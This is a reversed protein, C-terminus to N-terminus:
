VEPIGAIDSDSTTHPIVAQSVVRIAAGINQLSKYNTRLDVSLELQVTEVFNDTQVKRFWQNLNTKQRGAYMGGAQGIRVKLGVATLYDYLVRVRFQKMTLSDKQLGKGIGLIIDTNPIQKGFGHVYFIYFFHEPDPSMWNIKHKKFHQKRFNLIPEMFEQMVVEDGQIHEVNNCDAKDNFVDITPSREFGNNVVLHTPAPHTAYDHGSIIKSAYITGVDDAGHCCVVLINTNSGKYVSVREAM